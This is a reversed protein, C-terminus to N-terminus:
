TTACASSCPPQVYFGGTEARARQGGTVLKAGESNGTEIYGLVTKMQTEDVLAGM